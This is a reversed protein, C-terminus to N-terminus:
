NIPEFFEIQNGKIKYDILKTDKLNKLIQEITINEKFRCTFIENVLTIDRITIYVNYRRELDKAIESLPQNFFSLEGVTWSKNLDADVNEALILGSEESYSVQQNRVLMISNEENPTFVKVSGESLTVIATEEPYVRMNFKTGLVDVKLSSSHVIFPKQRNHTVEFFAEGILTVERKDNFFDSPYILKSQSNLWVKTGDSLVLSAKQGKPVDVINTLFEGDNKNEYLYYLNSSLLAIVIFIAAYKFISTLRIKKRITKQPHIKERNSLFQKYAKEIRQKDAFRAEDKLQWIHEMDFLWDANSKNSMAWKEVQDIEAPSCSNLLFRLLLTENM